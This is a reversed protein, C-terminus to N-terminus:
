SIDELYGDLNTADKFRKPAAMDLYPVIQDVAENIFASLLQKEGTKAESPMYEYVISESIVDDFLENWPITDTPASIVTPKLFYDGKLVIEANPSPYVYIKFNRVEYYQQVATSAGEYFLKTDLNPIPALPTNAGVIYPRGMLGWFDAPCEGYEIGSAITISFSDKILSSQLHFLRKAILRVSKNIIPYFNVRDPLQGKISNVIDIVNSM